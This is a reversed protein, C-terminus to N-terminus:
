WGRGRADVWTGIATAPYDIGLTKARRASNRRSIALWKLAAILKIWKGSAIPAGATSMHAAYIGSTEGSSAQILRNGHDCLVPLSSNLMDVEPTYGMMHESTMASGASGSARFSVFPMGYFDRTKLGNSPFSDLRQVLHAFQGSTFTDTAPSPDEFFVSGLQSPLLLPAVQDAPEDHNTAPFNPNQQDLMSPVPLAVADIAPLLRPRNGQYEFIHNPFKYADQKLKNVLAKHTAPIEDFCYYDHNLFAGILQYVSDFLLIIGQESCYSYLKDELICEWAHEITADWMKNSMGNGLLNRLRDRDVVLNRLFDQVTNIGSEALKKHFVGDKGIKELRWVDDGFSPPHHKKYLEGRHDKVLFARSIAEQVRAETCRSQSVRAGLRFKRSRIWSSNDTFTVDGLYGVGSSLTVFLDGTLLPRKGERERVINDNFEKETWEVQGDAGFDGDLVLIEIKLASLPGSTIIKNLETDIIAIKVPNRGEAEIRSSTFLTEPVSTRFHLRYQRSAAAPIQNLPLRPALPVYRYLANQVEEQVVRRLFPELKPLYRQVYHAGMVERMSNLFTRQRKADKVLSGGDDEGEEPYSRKLDMVLFVLSCILEVLM